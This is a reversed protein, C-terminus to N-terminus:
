RWQYSQGWSSKAMNVVKSITSEPVAFGDGEEYPNFHYAYLRAAFHDFPLSSEGM